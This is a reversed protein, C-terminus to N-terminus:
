KGGVKVANEKCIYIGEMMMIGSCSSIRRMSIIVLKCFFGILNLMIFVTLSM